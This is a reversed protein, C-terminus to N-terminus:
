LTIVPYIYIIYLNYLRTITAIPCATVTMYIINNYVYDILINSGIYLM